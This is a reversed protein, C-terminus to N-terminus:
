PNDDRVPRFEPKMGYADPPCDVRQWEVKAPAVMVTKEVERYEAPVMVRRTSAPRVLKQKRVTQYEAPVAVERVTADKVLRQTALTMTTAPGSVLCFVDQPAPGASNNTVCRDAQAKVWTSHGPNTEFTRDQVDFQAPVEVLKTHAEKVLVHEEVWEYEAPVVEVKESKERVCVRASRRARTQQSLRTIRSPSFSRM